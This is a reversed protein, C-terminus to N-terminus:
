ISELCSKYETHLQKASAFDHAVVTDVVERDDVLHVVNVCWVENSRILEVRKVHIPNYTVIRDPKEINITKM